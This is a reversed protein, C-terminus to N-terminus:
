PRKTAAPGASPAARCIDRRTSARVHIEETIGLTLDEKKNRDFDNKRGRIVDPGADNSSQKERRCTGQHPENIVCLASLNATWEHLASRKPTPGISCVGATAACTSMGVELLVRLHKSVVAAGGGLWIWLIV